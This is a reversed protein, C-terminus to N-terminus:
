EKRVVGNVVNIKVKVADKRNSRPFFDQLGNKVSVEFDYVKSPDPEVQVKGNNLSISLDDRPGEVKLRGNVGEIRTEPGSPLLIACRAIQIADLNLTLMGGDITVQPERAEAARCNWSLRAGPSSKLALKATNFPIKILKVDQGSLDQEGAIPVGKKLANNVVLDGIKVRGLDEDVDVLGGLLVLRGRESDISILPSLYWILIMASIFCFAFMALVSVFVWRMWRTPRKPPVYTAGRAALLTEAVQRPSGVELLVDSVDRQPNKNHMERIRAKMETIAEARDGISLGGLERDLQLLYHEIKLDQNM